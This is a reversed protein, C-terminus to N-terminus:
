YQFMAKLMLGRKLRGLSFAIAHQITVGHNRTCGEFAQFSDAEVEATVAEFGLKGDENNKL